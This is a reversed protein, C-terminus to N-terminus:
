SRSSVAEIAADARYSVVAEELTRHLHFERYKWGKFSRMIRTGDPLVWASLEGCEHEARLKVGCVVRTLQPQRNTM